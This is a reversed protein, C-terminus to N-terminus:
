MTPHQEYITWQQLPSNNKRALLIAGNVTGEGDAPTLVLDTGKLQIVYNNKGVPIFDYQQAVDEALLPQEEMAVGAAPSQTPQFTKGSFLNQLQYSNGEIHKFNWTMCKWNVPNYSVLPTGNSKNADKIRLLMGTKVNKIAFSGSIVQATGTHLLLTLLISFGVTKKM